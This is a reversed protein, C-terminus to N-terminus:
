ADVWADVILFKGEDAVQQLIGEMAESAEDVTVDDLKLVIFAEGKDM